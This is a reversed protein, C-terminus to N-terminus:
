WSVKCFWNPTKALSPKARLVSVKWRKMTTFQEVWNIVRVRMLGLSHWEYVLHFATQYLAFIWECQVSSHVSGLLCGIHSSECSSRRTTCSWEEERTFFAYWNDPMTKKCTCFLAILYLISLNPTAYCLSYFRCKKKETIKQCLLLHTFSM